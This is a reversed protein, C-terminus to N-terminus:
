IAFKEAAIIHRLADHNLKVSREAAGEGDRNMPRARATALAPPHPQRAAYEVPPARAQLVFQTRKTGVRSAHEGHPRVSTEDPPVNGPPEAQRSVPSPQSPTVHGPAHQAPLARVLTPIDPRPFRNAVLQEIKAKPIDGESLEEYVAIGPFLHGGTGGGAMIIRDIM